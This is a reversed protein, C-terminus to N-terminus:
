RTTYLGNAIPTRALPQSSDIHLAVFNYQVCASGLQYEIARSVGVGLVVLHLV